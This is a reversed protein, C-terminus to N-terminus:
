LRIQTCQVVNRVLGPFKRVSRQVDHYRSLAGDREACLSTEALNSDTRLNHVTAHNEKTMELADMDLGHRAHELAAVADDCGKFAERLSVELKTM